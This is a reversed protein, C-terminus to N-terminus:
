EILGKTLFLYYEMDNNACTACEVIKKQTLRNSDTCALDRQIIFIHINGKTGGDSWREM